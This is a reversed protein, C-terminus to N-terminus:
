MYWLWFTIPTITFLQLSIHRQMQKTFALLTILIIQSTHWYCQTSGGYQFVLLRQPRPQTSWPNERHARTHGVVGQEGNNRRRECTNIIASAIAKLLTGGGAAAEKSGLEAKASARFLALSTLIIYASKFPQKTYFNLTFKRTLNRSPHSWAASSDCRCCLSRM